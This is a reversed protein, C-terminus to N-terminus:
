VLSNYSCVTHSHRCVSHILTYLLIQIIGNIPLTPSLSLSLSICVSQSISITHCDVHSISCSQCLSHKHPDEVGSTKRSCEETCESENIMKEVVRYWLYLMRTDHGHGHALSVANGTAIPRTSLYEVANKALYLTTKGM